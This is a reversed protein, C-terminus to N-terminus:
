YTHSFFTSPACSSTRPWITKVLFLWLICLLQNKTLYNERSVILNHLQQCITDSM